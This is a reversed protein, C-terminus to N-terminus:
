FENAAEKLTFSFAAFEGEKSTLFIDEGHAQIISRVMYLGLGVGKRNEGRSKDTKYFREFVKGAEQEPIGKGTNRVYFLLKDERHTLGITVTGEEPTFKLANDVLNYIVRYIADSDGIAYVSEEPLLVEQRIKGEAFRDETTLLVRHVTETLDFPQMQYTTEGSEIRAVDLLNNVMRSLRKVEESVLLLYKREKEPPITGDLMGDIFGGITTMPTRLELSVDAIFSRRMTELHDLSDAMQNFTVALARLEGEPAVTIRKSFDGKAYQRAAVAMENLPRTFQRTTFYVFVFAIALVIAGCQLFPMLVSRAETNVRIQRSTTFVAGVVQDEEANFIPVGVTYSKGMGSLFVGLKRYVTGNLVFDVAEQPVEEMSQPLTSRIVQGGANVILVDCDVTKKITSINGLIMKGVFMNYNEPIAQLMEAVQLAAKEM